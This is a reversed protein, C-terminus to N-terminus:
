GDMSEEKLLPDTDDTPGESTDETSNQGGNSKKGFFRKFFAGAGGGIAGSGIAGGLASAVIVGVEATLAVGAIVGGAAGGALGLVVLGVTAGVMVNRKKSYESYFTEEEEKLETQLDDVLLNKQEESETELCTEYEDLLSTVASEVKSKVESPKTMLVKYFPPNEKKLVSRLRTMINRKQQLKSYTSLFRETREQLETQLDELLRTKEEESDTLLNDGYESLLDSIEAEATSRMESTTMKLNKYLSPDEKEFFKDLKRIILNRNRFNEMSYYMQTPSSFKFHRMQLFEVFTELQQRLNGCKIINGGSDIKPYNWITNMLDCIYTTFHRRFCADAAPLDGEALRLFENGPHPLLFASVSQSNLIQVVSNCHRSNELKQIEHDLYRQGAERGCNEPDNWDRVLLDLNKLQITPSGDSGETSSEALDSSETPCEQIFLYVELLDVETMKLTKNVNFILYSSLFMSLASLKYSAEPDRETDLSGETDLVFVAMKEADRELIFPRDWIWIGKTVTDAGNECQFGMLSTHEEEVIAPGIAAGNELNYLARLIYNMLFSKGCRKEGIVSLLCLSYDEIQKDMFCRQVVAPNLQLEGDRDQYVLQRPSGPVEQAFSLEQVNSALSRLRYVPILQDRPCPRRCEPCQLQASNEGILRLCNNCFTHGCILSTPDTIQGYCVSCMLDEELRQLPAARRQPLM